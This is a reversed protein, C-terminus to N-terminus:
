HRSKQDFKLIVNPGNDEKELDAIKQIQEDTPISNSKLFSTRSEQYMLGMADAIQVTGDMLVYFKFLGPKQCNNADYICYNTNNPDVNVFIVYRNAKEYLNCDYEDSELNHICGIYSTTDNKGVIWQMGNVTTFYPKFGNSFNYGINNRVCKNNKEVTNFVDFLEKCLQTGQGSDSAIMMALPYQKFTDYVVFDGSEIDYNEVVQNVAKCLEDYMQLYKIKTEDPRLKNIAPLSLAAVTGIVVMAILAEALTFGFKKM